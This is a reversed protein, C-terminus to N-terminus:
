KKLEEKKAEYKNWGDMGDESTSYESYVEENTLLDFMFFGNNGPETMVTYTGICTDLSPSYFITPQTPNQAYEIKDEMIHMYELCREKKTFLDETQSQCGVLITLTILVTTM